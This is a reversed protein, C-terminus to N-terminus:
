RVHIASETPPRYRGADQRHHPLVHASNDADEATFRDGLQDYVGQPSQFVASVIRSADGRQFRRLQGAPAGLALQAVELMTKAFRWERPEDADPMRAPRRMALRVLGIRVRVGGLPERHDVVPDDLIEALQALFQLSLTPDEDRLGVGLDDRVQDGDGHITARSRGLRHRLAQRPQAAGERQHEEEVALVIQQDACPLPRRQRDAASASAGKM